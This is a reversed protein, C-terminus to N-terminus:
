SIKAHGACIKLSYFFFFFFFIDRVDCWQQWTSSL